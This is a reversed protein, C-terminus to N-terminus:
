KAETVTGRRASRAGAPGASANYAFGFKNQEFDVFRRSPPLPLPIARIEFRRSAIEGSM